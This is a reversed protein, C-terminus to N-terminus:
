ARVRGFAHLVAIHNWKVRLGKSWFKYEEPLKYEENYFAGLDQQTSKPTEFSNPPFNGTGPIMKPRTKWHPHDELYLMNKLSPVGHRKDHLQTPKMVEGFQANGTKWDASSYGNINDYVASIRHKFKVPSKVKNHNSGVFFLGDLTGVKPKDAYGLDVKDIRVKPPLERQEERTQPPDVLGTETNKKRGLLQSDIEYTPYGAVPPYPYSSIVTKMVGNKGEKRTPSQAEVEAKWEANDKQNKEFALGLMKYDTDYTPYGKVPPYPYSSILTKMVGENKNEKKKKKAGAKKLDPASASVAFPGTKEGTSSVATSGSIYGLTKMTDKAPKLKRTEYMSGGLNEPEVTVGYGNRMSSYDSEYTPFGQVVPYPFTKIYKKRKTTIRTAKTPDSGNM